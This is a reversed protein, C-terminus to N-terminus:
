NGKRSYEPIEAEALIRKQGRGQESCACEVYIATWNDGAQQEDREAVFRLEAQQDRYCEGGAAM